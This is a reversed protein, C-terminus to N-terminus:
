HKLFIQVDMVNTGTPGTIILTGMKKFFSYSDNNNLYEMIEYESSKILTSYDAVAGAADTPGDIGDTGISGIVENEKIRKILSLVFEQNRGGKGNGKVTVVPEGGSVLVSHSPMTDFEDYIKQSIIRAEGSVITGLNKVNYGLNKAESEVAKLSDFNRCIIINKVRDYPFEDKKVTEFIQFKEPKKLIEEIEKDKINYKELIELADSFTTEDPSTLGSGITSLDDGMVDSVILSIIRAKTYKIVRGGKLYSIHKRVTNLDYIDAGAKMLKETIERIKEVSVIYDGVLSSAGGSILFIVLDNEKSEKLIELIEKAALYSNENPYPHGASIGYRSGENSVVFRKAEIGEFALIMRSSGKGVGIIYIKGTSNHFIENKMSIIKPYPDAAQIAKEMLKIIIKNKELINVDGIM